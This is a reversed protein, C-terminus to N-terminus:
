ENNNGFRRWLRRGIFITLALVGIAAFLTWNNSFEDPKYLPSMEGIPVFGAWFLPHLRDPPVKSDNLYKLKAQRLAENKTAGNKLMKFFDNSIRATENDPVSWLSMVISPCGAYAFSRSLSMIGEGRNINGFGSNCAGIFILSAELNMNYLEAATLKNDQNEDDLQAFVLHSNLPNKDDYIGHMALHLIDFKYATDRFVQETANGNLFASGDLMKAIIEVGKRSAPLDIYNEGRSYRLNPENTALSLKQSGFVPAFGGYRITKGVVDSKIQNLLMTGSFAYSITYDNLLYDLKAYNIEESESKNKLLIEFPIYGLIGEPVIILNQIENGSFHNFSDELLTRYIDHAKSTFNEWAHKISDRHTIYEIDTVSKRFDFIFQNFIPPKNFLDLFAGDKTISFIFLRDEGSMFEILISEDDLQNQIQELNAVSQDYKLQYYHPQDVEVQRIFQDYKEKEEFLRKQAKFIGVSDREQSAKLLDKQAISIKIKFVVDLAELSDPMSAFRMAQENAFSQLLVNSKNKESFYFAEEIYKDEKTFNKLLFCAYIAEQYVKSATRNFILQDNYEIFSRRLENILSDCVLFNQYASELAEFKNETLYVQTLTQAKLTLSSLFKNKDLVQDLPPNQNLDLVEYGFPVNANLANQFRELAFKLSGKKLFTKGIQEEIKAISLHRTGYFSEYMYHANNFYSSAQDIKGMNLYTAGIDSLNQAVKPHDEGFLSKNLELSKKFFYLASDPQGQARLVSAINKYSEAVDPYRTGHHVEVVDLAQQYFDLAQTYEGRETYIKGINNLFAARDPHEPGKLKELITLGRQTTNLGQGYTGRQIYAEGLNFYLRVVDAQEEKKNKEFIDIAQQLIEIARDQNGEDSFVNGLVGLTKATTPHEEGFVKQHIDLARQIKQFASDTKGLENEIEGVALLSEAIDPHDGELKRNRIKLSKEFYDFASKVKGDQFEIKGLLHFASATLTDNQSSLSLIKKTLRKAEFDEDALLLTESIELLTNIRLEKRNKKRYFNAAASFKKLADKYQRNEVFARGDALLISDQNSQASFPLTVVFIIFLVLAIRM